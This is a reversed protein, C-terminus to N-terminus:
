SGAPQALSLECRHDTNLRPDTIRLKGGPEVTVEYGAAAALNKLQAVTMGTRLGTCFSDIEGAARHLPWFIVATGGLFALLVASRVLLRRKPSLKDM